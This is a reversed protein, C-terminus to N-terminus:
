FEGLLEEPTCIIPIRYGFQTSTEEIKERISANALHKCNWTLLYNIGHVCAVSLHYADRVENKQIAKFDILYGAFIIIEESVDLHTIGELATLRKAAAQPDGLKAEDVVVQSIFLDFLQRQNEWWDSTISQHAAVILNRSPKATLYSVFSTELYVSPKEMFHYSRLDEKFFHYFFLKVLVM